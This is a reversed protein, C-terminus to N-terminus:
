ECTYSVNIDNGYGVVSKFYPRTVGPCNSNATAELAGLRDGGLTYLQNGLADRGSPSPTPSSQCGAISLAAAIVLSIQRFM